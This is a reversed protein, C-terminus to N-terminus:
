PSVGTPQHQPQTTRQRHRRSTVSDPPGLDAREHDHEMSNTISRYEDGWGRLRRLHLQSGATFRPELLFPQQTVAAFAPAAFRMPDATWTDDMTM